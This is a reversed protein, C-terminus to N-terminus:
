PTCQRDLGAGPIAQPAGGGGGGGAGAGDGARELRTPLFEGRGTRANGERKLMIRRETWKGRRASARKRPHTRAHTLPHARTKSVKRGHQGGGHVRPRLHAEVPVDPTAGSEICVNVRTCVCACVRTNSPHSVFRSSCLPRRIPGVDLVRPRLLSLRPCCCRVSGTETLGRLQGYRAFDDM